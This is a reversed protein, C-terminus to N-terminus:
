DKSEFRQVLYGSLAELGEKLQQTHCVYGIRVYGPFDDLGFCLGGPVMMAKCRNLVDVCFEDDKVPEGDKGLFQVFATTGANPRVWSCVHAHKQVFQDLVELNTRAMDLNRKLLNPLVPESLAYRAVQDDLQSVSITTYDRASAIASVIAPDRCAVWGLRLGALAYTKSMSGTSIVKDYGYTLISAPTEIGPTLSHFLPWYVEDCFVIIDRSRAFDVISKLVSEPIAAGSPNNPNNIIIMLSELEAVDPIFGKEKKLKWLSVYAGLSQPVAYLQAYTPHVCVVHDGHGLLTYLVLFNASIAGQTVLINDPPLPPSSSAQAHMQYVASIREKLMQSGKIPGYGLVTSKDIPISATSQDKPSASLSVLEDISISASCTESINIVGPTNEYRDMWVEVQFPELVVM